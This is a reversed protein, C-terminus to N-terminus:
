LRVMQRARSWTASRRRSRRQLGRLGEGARTRGLHTTPTGPSRRQSPVSAQDSPLAHRASARSHARTPGGISLLCGSLVSAGPGRGLSTTVRLPGHGVARLGEGGEDQREAGTGVGAVIKFAISIASLPASLDSRSEARLYDRGSAPKATVVWVSKKDVATWFRWKGEKLGAITTRCPKSVGPQAQEPPWPYPPQSRRTLQLEHRPKSRESGRPRKTDMGRSSGLKM